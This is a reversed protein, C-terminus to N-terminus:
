ICKICDFLSLKSNLINELRIISNITKKVSKNVKIMENITPNSALIQQIKEGEANIIHALATQELAVSEILDNIAQQRGNGVCVVPLTGEFLYNHAEIAGSLDYVILNGEINTSGSVYSAYPGLLAGKVSTTCTLLTTVEFLNWLIFKGDDGTAAVGNRFIQFSGFGFNDGSINILNTSGLPSVIDIGSLDQLEFGSGAINNGNITFINLSADTGTLTLTGFEVEATGNPILIAWGASVCRLYDNTTEFDIPTAEMPQPLVGNNNTMTYTIVNALSSIASNGSFNTGSTINMSGGVVLDFRTLSVPLVSGISYNNYTANGAVAVRGESDTNSQTHDNLTYINFDNAIGLNNM